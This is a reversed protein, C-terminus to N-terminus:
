PGFAVVGRMRRPDAGPGVAPTESKSVSRGVLRRRRGPGQPGPLPRTVLADPLPPGPPPRQDSLGLRAYIRSPIRM